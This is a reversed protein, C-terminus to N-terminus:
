WCGGGYSRENKNEKFICVSSKFSELALDLTFSYVYLTIHVTWKM